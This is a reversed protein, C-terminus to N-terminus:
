NSTIAHKREKARELWEIAAKSWDEAEVCSALYLAENAEGNKWAHWSQVMPAVTGDFFPEHFYDIKGNCLDICDQDFEAWSHVLPQPKPYQCWEWLGNFNDELLHFHREYIHLNASMHYWRGVPVGIRAAMYEQLMTMHVANAGCLGFVLDNSRNTIIFDLEGEAVRCIISMNCPYDKSTGELDSYGDWMALVCRRDDPNKQLQSCVREVQDYGFHRRWRHGYAANFTLGDDSYTMMNQNFQRVFETDNRGAIMWLGEVLHFFPNANREAHFLVREHPCRVEMFLPKMLSLAPGNRTSVPKGYAKILPMLRQYASNVNRTSVEFM